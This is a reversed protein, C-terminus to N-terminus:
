GCLVDAADAGRGGAATRKWGEPLTTRDLRLVEAKRTVRNHKEIEKM